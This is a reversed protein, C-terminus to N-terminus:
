NKGKKTAVIKDVIQETLSGFFPEGAYQAFRITQGLLNVEICKWKNEIDLYMDLSILKAYFIKNAIKKSAEILDEYFPIKENSFVISSNPHKFYKNGLKDVAFNNLFGQSSINCSMGGAGINDLSGDRGMRLNNNLIYIKGNLNLICVRVSSISDNYYRYILPSQKIKEQIVIDPMKACISLLDAKNDTFYINAGGWTDLTPKIVVPFNIDLKNIYSDIDIIKSFKPNYFENNIKFLYDSPFIGEGFWKNYFAKIQLFSVETRNNLLPEVYLAYIEEPIIEKNYVGTFSKTIEVTKLSIFPNIKRWYTLYEKKEKKTLLNKKFNSNSYIAKHRKYFAYYISFFNWLFIIKVKLSKRFIM